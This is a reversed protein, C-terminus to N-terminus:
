NNPLLQTKSSNTIGALVSSLLYSRDSVGLGIYNVNKDFNLDGRGYNLYDSISAISRAPTPANAANGMTTLIAARDTTGLGIYNSTASTNVDGSYMQRVSNAFLYNTGSTGYINGAATTTFDFSAPALSLAIPVAPNSSIGLHNRHRISVTYNGGDLNKFYLPSLNDIDIIEGNRRLLAARTQVVPATTANTITRLQIFVWDVINNNGNAQNALVSADIAEATNNAVHTFSSSLQASRYPDTLPIVSPATRYTEAMLGTGANYAGQLLVKTNVLLFKNMGYLDSAGAPINAGVFNTGADQGTGLAWTAGNWFMGVIDAETGTVQGDLYTGKGALTGSPMGSRNVKWATGLYSETRPHRQPTPIASGTAKVGVFAGANYTGGTTTYTFPTYNTGFGVPIVRDAVNAGVLRRAEGAANAELFKSPGANNVVTADELIFNFGNLQIKGNTFELASGVKVDGVLSANMPNDIELRPIVNGNTNIQQIATGKLQIKGLTGDSGGAQIPVNTTLNGQVTVVAGAGIFFTANDIVLQAQTSFVLFCAAPLLISKM